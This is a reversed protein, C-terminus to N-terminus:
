LFRRAGAPVSGSWGVGVRVFPVLLIARQVGQIRVSERNALSADRHLKAPLGGLMGDRAVAEERAPIHHVQGGVM